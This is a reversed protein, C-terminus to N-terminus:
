GTIAGSSEPSPSGLGKGALIEIVVPRYSKTNEHSQVYGKVFYFSGITLGIGALVGLAGAGRDLGLASGLLTGGFAGALLSLLPVGYLLFSYGILVKEQIALRIRQGVRVGVPDSAEIILDGSESTSCFATSCGECRESRDPQVLVGDNKVEIVVGEELVVALEGEKRM